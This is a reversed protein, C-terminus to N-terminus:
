FNMADVFSDDFDENNALIIETACEKIKNIDFLAEEKRGLLIASLLKVAGKLSSNGISVTEGSFGGPFLKISRIREYDLNSGFGGAIYVKDPADRGVLEKLGTYVAGKALQINRIDQQTVTIRGDDTLAFGKDFFDDSLLGSKDVIGNRVLESVTEMVGTGCLGIPAKGAITTANTLFGKESDGTIDVHCVAGPVSAVGCSIAGGEFVPGAATSTVKLDKGDFFAMEGNTGLDLLLEKKNDKNIIESYYIGAVIDAGVFASIGPMTVLDSGFMETEYVNNDVPTYPYNGLGEVDLGRFIHLMTTNGTVVIQSIDGGGMEEIGATLDTILGSIDKRVIDKLEELKNANVDQGAGSAYAIRSIVDAGFRRQHNVCSATHLIEKGGEDSVGVLAAAITTTGIDVAIGYKDYDGSGAVSRATEAVIDEEVLGSDDICVSCDTELSCRCLLRVGCAIDKESLFTKDLTNPIPAGEIFRVRCKGCRGAGGCPYSVNFGADSLVGKLQKGKFAELTVINKKHEIRVKIRKM